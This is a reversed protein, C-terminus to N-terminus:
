KPDSRDATDNIEEKTYNPTTPLPNVSLIASYSDEIGNPHLGCPERRYTVDWTISEVNVTEFTYPNIIDRYEPKENRRTAIFTSTGRSMEDGGIVRHCIVTHVAPDQYAGYIVEGECLNFVRVGPITLELEHKRSNIKLTKDKHKLMM